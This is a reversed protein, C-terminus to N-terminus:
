AGGSKDIPTSVTYWWNNFNSTHKTLQEHSRSGLLM